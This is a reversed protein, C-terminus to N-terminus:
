GKFSRVVRYIVKLDNDDLDKLMNGINELQVDREDLHGFDFLM